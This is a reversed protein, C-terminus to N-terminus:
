ILQDNKTLIIECNEFAEIKRGKLPTGQNTM